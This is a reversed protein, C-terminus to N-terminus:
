MRGVGGVCVKFGNKGLMGLFVGPFRNSNRVRTKESFSESTLCLRRLFHRQGRIHEECMETKEWMPAQGPQHRQQCPKGCVLWRVWLVWGTM